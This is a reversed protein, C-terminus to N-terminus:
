ESVDHPNPNFDRKSPRNKFYQPRNKAFMDLKVTFFTESISNQHKLPGFHWSKETVEKTLVSFEHSYKNM